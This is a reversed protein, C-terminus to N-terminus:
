GEITLFTASLPALVVTEGCKAAVGPLTPLEDTATMTLEVGNLGVGPANLVPDSGNAAAGMAAVRYSTVNSCSRLISEPTNIRAPATPDLNLALLVMTSHGFDATHTLNFAYAHVRKGTGGGTVSTSLVEATTGILQRFLFASWFPPFPTHLAPGGTPASMFMNEFLDAFMFKLLYRYRAPARALHLIRRSSYCVLTRALSPAKGHKLLKAVGVSPLCGLNNLLSLAGGFQHLYGKGGTFSHLPQAHSKDSHM